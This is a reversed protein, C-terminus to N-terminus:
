RIGPAGPGQKELLKAVRAVGCGEGRDALEWAIRRAGYRRRHRDFIARVLPMLEEDRRDRASLGRFQWTYFGSRSVALVQCIASAAFSESIAIQEIAAFM